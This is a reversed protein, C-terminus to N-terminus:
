TTTSSGSAETTAADIVEAATADGIGPHLLNFVIGTAAGLVAAAAGIRMVLRDQM